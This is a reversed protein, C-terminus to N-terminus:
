DDDIDDCAPKTAAKSLRKFAKAAYRDSLGALTCRRVDLTSHEGKVGSVLVFPLCVAEVKLPSADATIWVSRVPSTRPDRCECFLSSPMYEVVTSLIAVYSGPRIDEPALPKSVDCITKM